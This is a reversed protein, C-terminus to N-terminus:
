WAHLEGHDYTEFGAFSTFRVCACSLQGYRHRTPTICMPHVLQFERQAAPSILLRENQTTSHMCFVEFVRSSLFPAHFRRSRAYVVSRPSDARARTGESCMELARLMGAITPDRDDKRSFPWSSPGPAALKPRKALPKLRMLPGRTTPSRLALWTSYMATHGERASEFGENGRQKSM